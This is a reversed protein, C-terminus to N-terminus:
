NIDLIEDDDNDAPTSVDQPTVEESQVPAVTDESTTKTQTPPASKKKSVSFLQAREDEESLKKSGATVTDGQQLAPANLEEMTSSAPAENLDMM